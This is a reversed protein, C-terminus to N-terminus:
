YYTLLPKINQFVTTTSMIDFLHPAEFKNYGFAYFISQINQSDM